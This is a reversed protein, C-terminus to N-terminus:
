YYMRKLEKKEKTLSVTFNPAVICDAFTIPLRGAESPVNSEFVEAWYGDNYRCYKRDQVNQSGEEYTDYNTYIAIDNWINPRWYPYCDGDVDSMMPLLM